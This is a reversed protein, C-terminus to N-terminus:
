SAPEGRARRLFEAEEVIEIGLDRAKARKGGAGPGAVVLDTKSSISSGARGGQAEVLAKAEDRSLTELTGTFVVTLGAFAGGGASSVVPAPAVGRERMRQLMAQNRPEAFWSLVAHAMTEGVEDIELLEERTAGVVGELTAFARALLKAGREGVERIGLAYLFRDLPRTRAEQIQAVLNAASKEGWRELAALREADLAFLDSADRVLGERWLQAAQKEGVGRIDMGLRGAFHQLHRVVQPPCAFNPCRIAVKGEDRVLTTGCEPCESPPSVERETGTRRDELVRVVRPIVDGAREILVSDGDRIGLRQVEDANHLSARSITVGALHVPELMAGPTVTGTRGVSWVVERVRTVAQQAPFKWAVAWRPSRSRVGLRRQLEFDDVKVVVGDLEYPLDNRRLVLEHHMAVVDDVGEVSRIEPAVPLGWEAYAELLEAQGAFARDGDLAGYGYALFRIPRSAPITPDLQRLSGACLNRPNAFPEEGAEQLQENLTAFDAKRIYAEGRVAIRRPPDSCRLRQPLARITRANPTVDEGVFGDGRTSAVALVGDEYIVELSVGDIKPEVSYRLSGENRLYRDVSDVWERFEEETAVNDISLMPTPHPFPPFDKAVAGPVRRTPSGPDALDPHARELEVLERYLVDYEADTLSPRDLVYYEHDAERIRRRLVEARERPGPAAVDGHPDAAM